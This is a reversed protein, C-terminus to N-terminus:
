VIVPNEGTLPSLPYPSLSCSRAVPPFRVATSDKGEEGQAASEALVAKVAEIV